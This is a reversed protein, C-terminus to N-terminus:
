GGRFAREGEAFERDAAESWTEEGDPATFGDGIETDGIFRERSWREKDRELRLLFATKMTAEAYALPNASKLPSFKLINTILAFRADSKMEDLNTYNRWCARSGFRRVLAEIMAGLEDTLHGQHDTPTRFRGGDVAGIWNSRLVCRPRTRPYRYHEFPQFPLLTASLGKSPSARWGIYHPVHDWTPKRFVVEALRKPERGEVEWFNRWGLRLEEDTPNAEDLVAGHFAADAPDHDSCWTLVSRDIQRMLDLGSVPPRM